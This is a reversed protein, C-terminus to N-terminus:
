RWWWCPEQYWDQWRITCTTNWPEWTQLGGFRRHSSWKAQLPSATHSQKWQSWAHSHDQGSIIVRFPLGRFSDLISSCLVSSNWYSLSATEMLWAGDKLYKLTLRDKNSTRLLIQSKDEYTNSAWIYKKIIECCNISSSIAPSISLVTFLVHIKGKLFPLKLLVLLYVSPLLLVNHHYNCTCPVIPAYLIFCRLQGPSILFFKM